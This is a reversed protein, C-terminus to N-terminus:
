EEKKPLFKEMEESTMNEMAKATFTGKTMPAGGISRSFTERPEVPPSGIVSPTSQEEELVTTSEQNLITGGEKHLRGQYYSDLKEQADKAQSLMNEYSGSFNDKFPILDPYISIIKTQDAEEQASRLQYELEEKEKGVAALKNALEYKEREDDGMRDKLRAELEKKEAELKKARSAESDLRSQLARVREPENSRVEKETQNGSSSDESSGVKEPREVDEQFKEM